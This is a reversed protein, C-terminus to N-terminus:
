TAQERPSIESMRFLRAIDSIDGVDITSHGGGEIGPLNFKFRFERQHRFRDDKLFVNEYFYTKRPQDFNDYIVPRGCEFHPTLRLRNAFDSANLILVAYAEKLNSCCFDEVLRNSDRIQLHTDHGVVEFFVRTMCLVYSELDSDRTMSFSKLDDGLTHLEEGSIGLRFEVDTGRGISSIGENPDGRGVSELDRYYRLKGVRIKGSMFSEAYVRKDLFRAFTYNDYM